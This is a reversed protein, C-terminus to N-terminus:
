MGKGAPNQQTVSGATRHPPFARRLVLLFKYYNGVRMRRPEILELYRWPTVQLNSVITLQKLIVFKDPRTAHLYLNM